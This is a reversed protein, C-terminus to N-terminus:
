KWYNKVSKVPYITVIIEEFDRRGKVPSTVIKLLLDKESGRRIGYYNRYIKNRPDSECAIPHRLISPIDEIDRVKLRHFKKAIHEFGTENRAKERIYFLRGGKGIIPQKIKRLADIIHQDYDCKKQKMFAM